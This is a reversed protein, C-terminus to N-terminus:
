LDKRMLRHPIRGFLVASPGTEAYGHKSYFPVATERANLVIHTAGRAAARLELEDLIAGGIGQGALGNDVAMYRIQAEEPSIFHIRGVGVLVGDRWAGLHTAEQEFQDRESDKSQAWPERLIRWRLDYYQSYESENRPERVNLTM